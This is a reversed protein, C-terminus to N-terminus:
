DRRVELAFATSATRSKDRAAKTTQRGM